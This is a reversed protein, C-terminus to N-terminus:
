QKLEENQATTDNEENEERFTPSHSKEELLTIDKSREQGDDDEDETVDM